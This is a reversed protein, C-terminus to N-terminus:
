ILYQEYVHVILGYQFAMEFSRFVEFYYLIYPKNSLALKIGRIRKRHNLGLLFIRFQNAINYFNRIKKLLLYIFDWCNSFITKLNKLWM